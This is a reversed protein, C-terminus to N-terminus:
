IQGPFYGFLYAVTICNKIKFSETIELIQSVRLRWGGELRNLSDLIQEERIILVWLLRYDGNASM